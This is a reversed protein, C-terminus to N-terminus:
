ALGAQAAARVLLEGVQALAAAGDDADIQTDPVFRPWWSIPCLAELAAQDEAAIDMFLVRLAGPPSGAAQGEPAVSGSPLANM